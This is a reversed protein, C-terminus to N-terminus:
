VIERIQFEANGSCRALIEGSADRITWNRSGILSCRGLQHWTGDIQIERNALNWFGRPKM